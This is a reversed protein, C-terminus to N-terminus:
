ALREIARATAEGIQDAQGLSLEPSVDIHVARRLLGMTRPCADPPYEVERPHGRWPGGDRSWARKEHLPVWAEYAHLDVYDRPLLEGDNYLRTAPVNDAALAEAVRKAVGPEGMLMVVAVGTDVEPDHLARFRGGRARLAEGVADKIRAKRERMADVLGKLRGLQVLLVAAHLESMRLNVGPLWEELPAGTNPVAASDHYM